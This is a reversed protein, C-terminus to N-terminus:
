RQDTPQSLGIRSSESGEGEGRRGRFRAMRSPARQNQPCKKKLSATEARM